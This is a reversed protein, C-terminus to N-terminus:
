IGSSYLQGWSIDQAFFALLDRMGVARAKPSLKERRKCNTFIIDQDLHTMSITTEVPNIDMNSWQVIDAGLMYGSKLQMLTWGAEANIMHTSLCWLFDVLGHRVDLVYVPKMPNDIFVFRKEVIFGNYVGCLFHSKADGLDYVLRKKNELHTLKVNVSREM